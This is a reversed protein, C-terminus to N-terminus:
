QPLDVRVGTNSAESRKSAWAVAYVVEFTAQLRGQQQASSHYANAFAQWRNKGTLSRRRGTMANTAGLARLDDVLKRLEGYSFLLMDVDVVPETFGAGLVADGVNHMDAFPHVHPHDDIEEWAARVEKLTDPGLTSFVVVGGPRLIRRVEQLAVVPDCWPLVLNAFVLDFTAKSFPLANTNGTIPAWKGASSQPHLPLPCIDLGVVCADPFCRALAQSEIGPGCGLDLIVEPVFNLLGLREVLEEGCRRALIVDQPDFRGARRSARRVSRLELEVRAEKM